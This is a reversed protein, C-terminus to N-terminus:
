GQEASVSILTRVMDLAVLFISLCVAVLIGVLKFSTPYPSSEVRELAEGDLPEHVGNITELGRGGHEKEEMVSVDSPTASGGEHVHTPAPPALKENKEFDTDM